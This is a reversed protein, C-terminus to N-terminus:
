RRFSALLGFHDSPFVFPLEPTIAETGLLEIATAAWGSERTFGKSLIRDFRVQKHKGKILYRMQNITTDETYGPENGRLLEWVDHYAPDIRDNENQWSACFNFDGMLVVNPM